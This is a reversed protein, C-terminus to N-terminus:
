VMRFKTLSSQVTSKPTLASETKWIQSEHLGHMCQYVLHAMLIGTVNEELLEPDVEQADKEQRQFNGLCPMLM